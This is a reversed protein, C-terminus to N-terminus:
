RPRPSRAPIAERATAIGTGGHWFVVAGALLILVIYRVATVADAGIGCDQLRKCYLLSVTISAGSVSLLALRPSAEGWPSAAPLGSYGGIVVVVARLRFRSGRM